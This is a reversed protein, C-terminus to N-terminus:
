LKICYGFEKLMRGTEVFGGVAFAFGLVVVFGTVAWEAWEWWQVRRTVHGVLNLAGIIQGIVLWGVMFVRQRMTSQGRRFKSIMGVVVYPVILSFLTIMFGVRRRFRRSRLLETTNFRYAQGVPQVVIKARPDSSPSYTGDLPPIYVRWSKKPLPRGVEDVEIARWQGRATRQFRLDVFESGAVAIEIDPSAPVLEAVEGVFEGGERQEAELMVDSRVLFLCDYSAEIINATVNLISMVTYPLVTFGFAAFGYRNTEDGYSSYLTYLSSIIQVLGTFAKVFSYSNSLVIDPKTARSVALPMLETGPPLHALTYNPPLTFHGHIKYKDKDIPRLGAPGIILTAADSTFLEDGSFEVSEDDNSAAPVSSHSYSYTSEGPHGLLEESRKSEHMERGRSGGRTHEYKRRSRNDGRAREYEGRSRSRSHRKKQEKRRRRRMRRELKKLRHVDGGAILCGRVIEGSEPRWGEERMIVCLARALLARDIDTHGLFLSGRAITAAASSIGVFPVFLSAFVNAYDWLGKYGSTKKYTVIRAVYNTIFFSLIQNWPAPKICLTKTTESLGFNAARPFIPVALTLPIFLILLLM